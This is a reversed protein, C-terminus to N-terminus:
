HFRARMQRCRLRLLCWAKCVTSHVSATSRTPAPTPAPANAPAATVLCATRRCSSDVTLSASRSGESARPWSLMATLHSSARSCWTTCTHVCMYSTILVVVQEQDSLGPQNTTEIPHLLMHSSHQRFQFHVSAKVGLRPIENSGM